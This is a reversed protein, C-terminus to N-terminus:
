WTSELPSEESVVENGCRRSLLDVVPQMKSIFVSVCKPFPADDDEVESPSGHTAASSHSDLNGTIVPAHTSNWKWVRKVVACAIILSRSILVHKFLYQALNGIAWGKADHRLEATQSYVYEPTYGPSGGSTGLGFFILLDGVKPYATMTSLGLKIMSSGWCFWGIGGVQEQTPLPILEIPNRVNGNPVLRFERYTLILPRDEHSRALMLRDGSADPRSSEANEPPSVQASFIAGKQTTNAHQDM